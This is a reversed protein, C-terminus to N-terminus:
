RTKELLELAADSRSGKGAFVASLIQNKLDHVARERVEHLYFKLTDEGVGAVIVNENIEFQENKNHASATVTVNWEKDKLKGVKTKIKSWLGYKNKTHVTSKMNGPL